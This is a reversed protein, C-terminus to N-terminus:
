RENIIRDYKKNEEELLKIQKEMFEIELKKAENKLRLEELKENKNNGSMREIWISMVFWFFASFGLFGFAMMMIMHMMGTM